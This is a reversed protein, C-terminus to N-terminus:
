PSDPVFQAMFQRDIYDKWRWLLPHHWGLPGWSAIACCDGTGLLALYRRQPCFPRLPREGVWRGVNEFLPRGQRVALVGAKPRPHNVMTAIDGAGFVFPHSVSQLTDGVLLFGAGDTALGGAGLWSPASAQTVWFVFDYPIRLGSDCRLEDGTVEGVREGLYLQVGRAELLQTVRQSVWPHHGGMLREGRHILHFGCCGAGAAKVRAQLNFALEVGGAGGGVIALQWDRGRDGRIQDLIGEWQALFKPVPKIPVGYQAAGQVDNEAPTSGIDLSLLDFAITEPEWDPAIKPADVPKILVEKQALDLGVAEGLRFEVGAWECLRPLDIHTEDYSYFGAVHGPLMGSYPTYVVNSILIVQLDRLPKKTWQKLFIVHSHGGGILLLQKM